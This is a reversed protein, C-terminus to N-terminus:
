RLRTTAPTWCTCRSATRGPRGCRASNAIVQAAAQRTADDGAGVRVQDQPATWSDHAFSLQALWQFSWGAIGAGDGGHSGPCSHHHFERGPSCEAEPRPYASADIAFALPWGPERAAVLLDRLPEEDIGGQGLAQYIMGHGRRFAPELSLYPLSAVLGPATLVADALEFLADGCRWLCWHWEQRFWALRGLADGPCWQAGRAM